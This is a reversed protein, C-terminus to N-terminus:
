QGRPEKFTLSDFVETIQGSNADFCQVTCRVILVYVRDRRPSLMSVVEVTQLTGGTAYTVYQHLGRFRGSSVREARVQAGADALSTAPIILDRLAINIPTSAAGSQEVSLLERVFAFVV